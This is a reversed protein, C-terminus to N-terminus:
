TEDEAVCVVQWVAVPGLGLPPPTRRYNYRDGGAVVYSFGRVAQYAEDLFTLVLRSATVIGVDVVVGMSDQYEVACLARVPARPTVVPAAAPDFPVNEADALGANTVQPPFFFLPQDAPAPPLGMMMAASIGWRFAVPDLGPVPGAM